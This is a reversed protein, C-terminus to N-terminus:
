DHRPTEVTVCDRLKPTCAKMDAPLRHEIFYIGARDFPAARLLEASKKLPVFSAKANPVDISSSMFICDSDVSVTHRSFYRIQRIDGTVKRRQGCFGAAYMGPYDFDTSKEVLNAYLDGPCRRTVEILYFDGGDSIFQTHVLGDPLNLVSAFAEVWRRLDQVIDGGLDTGLHSSNVQYPHVTCYETVFFDAAVRGNQLFASHSYLQGDVFEEFVVSQTGSQSKARDIGDSLRVPSDIKVIGKGSFSDSPKVLIPFRLGSAESQSQTSRPTPFGHARCLERFRDKRHIIHTSELTGYGPLHLQDAVWACSLYSVDTCGPVLFDIGEGIVSRLLLERDGYDLVLSLDALAHGPDAPRSGCVAVRYGMRKLALLIPVASFAADCLLATPTRSDTM